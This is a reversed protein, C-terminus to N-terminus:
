KRETIEFETIRFNRYNSRIKLGKQSFGRQLKFKEADRVLLNAMIVMSRDKSNQNIKEFTNIKIFVFKLRTFLDGQYISLHRLPKVFLM